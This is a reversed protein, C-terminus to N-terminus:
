RAGQQGYGSPFNVRKRPRNTLYRLESVAQRAFHRHIRRWEPNRDHRCAWNNRLANIAWTIREQM